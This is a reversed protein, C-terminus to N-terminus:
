RPGPRRHTAACSAEFHLALTELTDCPPQPENELGLGEGCLPCVARDPPVHHVEIAEKRRPRRPAAM